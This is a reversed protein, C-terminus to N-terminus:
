KDNLDFITLYYNPSFISFQGSGMLLVATNNMSQRELVGGERTSLPSLMDQDGVVFYRPIIMSGV